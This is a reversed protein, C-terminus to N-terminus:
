SCSDCEKFPKTHAMKTFDFDKINVLYTGASEGITSVILNKVVGCSTDVQIDEIEGGEGAPDEVPLNQLHTINLSCSWLRGDKPVGGCYFAKEEESVSQKDTFCFNSDIDQYSEKLVVKQREKITSVKTIPVLYFKAIRKAEEKSFGKQVLENVKDATNEITKKASEVPINDAISHGAVDIIVDTLEEKLSNALDPFILMKARGLLKPNTSFIINVLSGITKEDKTNVKINRISGARVIV